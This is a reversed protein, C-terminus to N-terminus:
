PLSKSYLRFKSFITNELGVFHIERLNAKLYRPNFFDRTCRPRFKSFITSELGLFDFQSTENLFHRAKLSNLKQTFTVFSEIKEDKIPAIAGKVWGGSNSKSVWKLTPGLDAEQFLSEFNM